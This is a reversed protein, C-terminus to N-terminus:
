IRLRRRTMLMKFNPVCLKHTRLILFRYIYLLHYLYDGMFILYLSISYDQISSVWESINALLPASTQSQEQPPHVIRHSCGQFWKLYDDDCEWGRNVRQLESIDMRKDPHRWSSYSAESIGKFVLNYGRGSSGRSEKDPVLPGLPISQVYGFQRLVRDPHYPECIDWCRLVGRFLCVGGVVSTRSNKYPDWVVQAADLVDLARRVSVLSPIPHGVQPRTKYKLALPM